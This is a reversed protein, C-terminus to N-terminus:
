RIAGENLGAQKASPPKGGLRVPWWRNDHDYEAWIPRLHPAVDRMFLDVSHKTIESPMSGLQMFLALNGIRFTKALFELRDRVTAASGAVVAGSEVLRRYKPPGDNPPPGAMM